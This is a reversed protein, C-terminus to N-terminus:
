TSCRRRARACTAVSRRASRVGTMRSGNRNAPGSAAPPTARSADSRAAAAVRAAHGPRHRCELPQELPPADEEADTAAADSLRRRRGREGHTRGPAAAAGGHQGDVRCRAQLVRETEPREVSARPANGETSPNM